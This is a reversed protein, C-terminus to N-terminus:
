FLTVPTLSINNLKELYTEYLGPDFNRSLENMFGHFGATKCCSLNPTNELASILGDVDFHPESAPFFLQTDFMPHIHLHHRIQSPYFGIARRIHAFAPTGSLHWIAAAGASFGILSRIRPNKELRDAIIDAYAAIGVRTSFFEHALAEDRFKIRGGYPDIIHTANLGVRGALRDLAPTHGFIDAAILVDM